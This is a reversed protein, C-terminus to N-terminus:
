VLRSLIKEAALAMRRYGERNPHGGDVFLSADANGDTGTLALCFDVAPIEKELAYRRLERHLEDLVALAHRDYYGIMESVLPTTIGLVPCIGGSFSREVIREINSKIERVNVGMLIDNIGGMVVAHSPRHAAVHRDFRYLMSDTTDGNIGRNIMNLGLKDGLIAVWSSEPGYPFGHTISDGLCAVADRGAAEGFQEYGERDEVVLMINGPAAGLMARRRIESVVARSAASFDTQGSSCGKIEVVVGEAGREAAAYLVLAVSRRLPDGDFSLQGYGEPVALGTIIFNGNNDNPKTSGPQYIELM